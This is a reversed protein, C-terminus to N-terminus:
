LELRDHVRRIRHFGRHRRCPGAISQHIGHAGGRSHQAFHRYYYHYLQSLHRKVPLTRRGGGWDRRFQTLSVTGFVYGATPCGSSIHCSTLDFVDARAPAEALLGTILLAATGSIISLRNLNMKDEIGQYEEESHQICPTGLLHVRTVM